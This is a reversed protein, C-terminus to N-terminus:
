LSSDSTARSSGMGSIPPPVPDLLDYTLCGADALANKVAPLQADLLARGRPHLWHGQRFQAVGHRSWDQWAELGTPPVRARDRELVVIDHGDEALLAASVM